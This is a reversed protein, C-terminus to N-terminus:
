KSMIMAKCSTLCKVSVMFCLFFCYINCVVTISVSVSFASTQTTSLVGVLVKATGIKFPYKSAFNFASSHAGLGLESEVAAKLYKFQNECTDLKLSFADVHDTFKINKSKGTVYISVKQFLSSQIILHSFSCTNYPRLMTLAM